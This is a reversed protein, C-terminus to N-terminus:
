RGTPPSQTESPTDRNGPSTPSREILSREIEKIADLKQEAEALARKLRLIEQEQQALIRKDSNAQSRSREDLTAALRRNDAEVKLRAVVQNLLIEAFTREAPLLRETNALLVELIRKGDAPKSAPHGPTILALAFRLTAATTPVKKYEREVEFFVDAQRAPDNSGLATMTQFYVKLVDENTVPPAVVQQRTEQRPTDPLWSCGATLAVTAILM